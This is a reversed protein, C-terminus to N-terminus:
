SITVGNMRFPKDLMFNNNKINDIFCQTRYITKRLIPKATNTALWRHRVDVYGIIWKIENGGNAPIKESFRNRLTPVISNPHDVSPGSQIATDYIILYSLPLTLGWRKCIAVAPKWYKDEFLKDQLIKMIPDKGASNLLSIFRPDGALSPKIGIRSVYPVFEKSHSGKSLSYATILHKLLGNFETVQSRGYSIQRINGPGDNAITIKGYDGEKKSTEAVNITEIIKRKVDETIM